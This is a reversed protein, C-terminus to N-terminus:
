ERWKMFELREAEEMERVAAEFHFRSIGLRLRVTSDPLGEMYKLRVLARLEESEMGALVREARIVQRRYAAILLRHREQIEELAELADDMGRGGGGGRPMPSIQQTLKAMRAREWKERDELAEIEAQLPRIKRILVLDKNRTTGTRDM